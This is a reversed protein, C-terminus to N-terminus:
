AKEDAAGKLVAKAERALANGESGVSHPVDITGDLRVCFGALKWALIALEAVRKQSEDAFYTMATLNGRLVAVEARLRECEAYLIQVTPQGKGNFLIARLREVEARLSTLQLEPPVGCAISECQDELDAKQRFWDSCGQRGDGSAEDVTASGASEAPRPAPRIESTGALQEKDGFKRAAQEAAERTPWSGIQPLLSHWAGNATLALRREDAFILVKQAFAEVIEFERGAITKPLESM